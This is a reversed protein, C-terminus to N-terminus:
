FGIFIWSVTAFINQVEQIAEATNPDCVKSSVFLFPNKRESLYRLVFEGERNEQKKGKHTHFERDCQRKM